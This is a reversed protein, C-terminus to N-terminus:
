DANLDDSAHCSAENDRRILGLVIEHKLRAGADDGRRELHELCCVATVAEVHFYLVTRRRQRVLLRANETLFM